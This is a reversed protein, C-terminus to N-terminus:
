VGRGRVGEARIEARGHCGLRPAEIVVFRGASGAGSSHVGELVRSAVARHPMWVRVQVAVVM